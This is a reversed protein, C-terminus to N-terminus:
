SSSMATVETTIVYRPRGNSPDPARVVGAVQAGFAVVGTTLTTRGRITELASRVANVVGMLSLWMPRGNADIQGWCSISLTGADVPADSTVSEGGGVRAVTVLPFTADTAGHPVELFVRQSAGLAAQVGTNARLYARMGGEVDPWNSM